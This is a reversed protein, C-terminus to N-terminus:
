AQSALPLLSVQVFGVGASPPGCRVKKANGCTRPVVQWQGYTFPGYEWVKWLISDSPSWYKWMGEGM